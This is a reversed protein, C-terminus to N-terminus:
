YSEVSLLVEEACAASSDAEGDCCCDDVGYELVLQWGVQRRVYSSLELRCAEVEGIDRLLVLCADLM